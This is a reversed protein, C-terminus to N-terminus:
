NEIKLLLQYGFVGNIINRRLTKSMFHRNYMATLLSNDHPDQHDM